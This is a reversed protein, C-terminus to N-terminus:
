SPAAPRWRFISQNVALRTALLM